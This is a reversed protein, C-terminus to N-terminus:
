GDNDPIYCIVVEAAGTTAATRRSHCSACLAMLNQPDLRRHPAVAVDVIHHVQAAPEVRGQQHCDHCWPHEALHRRRLRQWARDYARTSRRRACGACGPRRCTACLPKPMMPM